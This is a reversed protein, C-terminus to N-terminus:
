KNGRIYWETEALIIEKEQENNNGKLAFGKFFCERLEKLNHRRCM